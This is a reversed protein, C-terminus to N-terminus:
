KTNISNQEYENKIIDAIQTFSLNIDFVDATRFTFDFYNEIEMIFSVFALSDFNLIASLPSDIYLKEVPINPFLNSILLELKKQYM